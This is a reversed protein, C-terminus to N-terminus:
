MGIPEVKIGKSTNENANGSNSTLQQQVKLHYGGMAYFMWIESWPEMGSQDQYKKIQKM